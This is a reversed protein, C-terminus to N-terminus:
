DNPVSAGRTEASEKSRFPSAARAYRSFTLAKAAWRSREEGTRRLSIVFYGLARMLLGCLRILDYLWTQLSGAQNRQVFYDRATTAVLVEADPNKGVSASLHHEVVAAPVHFVEWGATRIRDCWEQDEAYMFWRENLPGVQDIVSRRVLLCAGSLWGVSRPQRDHKGAYYHLGQFAPIHPFIRSLFLHHNFVTRLTPQEGCHLVSLEGQPHVLKPGAAGVRPHEKLFALLEQLAGARLATDSNLLMVLDAACLPFVRNNAVAFGLNSENRILRVQPFEREVMEASGDNSANDSVFVELALDRATAFVSALCLRLLRQTNWSVIVISLDPTPM